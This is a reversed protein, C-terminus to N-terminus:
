NMRKPLRAARDRAFWKVFSLWHYRAIGITLRQGPTAPKCAIGLM